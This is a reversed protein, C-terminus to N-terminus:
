SVTTQEGLNLASTMVNNLISFVKSAAQYSSELASMASAEDNLNVSSLADSQTQLQTVSATQATNETQVESITSGLSSVFSSFYDSPTQGNLLSQGNTLELGSLVPPNTLNGLDAMAVANASDGSGKGLAAAAIQTPSTLVMSMTLASGTVQAFSSFVAAGPLGNLDIGLSNQANVETSVGYALQDLAGLVSPIDEDRATLYGGLQGGGTRLGSNIDVNGLYIHTLGDVSGTTMQFSRGESVLSAGNSTTISIGDNETTVQNIGVLKSLQSIDQQRQDELVGADGNTTSSQIQENLQAIGATLANVQVAVGSIEQNLDSRQSTLSKAAGSVDSALTDATSLVKQRYANSTPDSELSTFSDFFNTIDSGIDGAQSSSSGSDPTFIAQVTNLSSLRASSASALQQQQDLRETLVRDRVSTPGTESVGQGLSAGHISVPADETWNPNEKTYGPTSANAVNNAVISLAAQDADLAQSAISMASSITGM